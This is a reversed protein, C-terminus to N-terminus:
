KNNLGRVYGKDLYEQLLIPNIRKQGLEPHKVWITGLNLKKKKEKVHPIDCLREVGYKEKFTEKTKNKVKESALFHDLGYKEKSTQKIKKQIDVYHNETRNEMIKKQTESNQFPFEVGYKIKNTKRMAEQCYPFNGTIAMNLCDAREMINMRILVKREWILASQKDKFTKRIEYIFSEKGYKEILKKVKKSSTFYTKWFEEPACKKAYRVGYYWQSTPKCFILYTYPKM